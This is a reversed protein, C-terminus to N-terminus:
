AIRLPTEFCRFSIQFQKEDINRVSLGVTYGNDLPLLQETGNHSFGALAYSGLLVDEKERTDLEGWVQLGSSLILSHSGESKYFERFNGAGAIEETGNTLYVRLYKNTM